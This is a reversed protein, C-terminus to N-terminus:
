LILIIGLIFEIIASVINSKVISHDIFMSITRVIGVLLYTFGLMSYTDTSRKFLAFVGLGIFFAGLIARIETIGRGGEVRLGTFEFVATPKVLSFLGTLITAISAIIKLISLINM